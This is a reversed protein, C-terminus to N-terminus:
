VGLLEQLRTNRHAVQDNRVAMNIARQNGVLVCLKRARTIATYLLNRQLMLYHQTVIPMVVAPFEAGQSKHVSIAYALTLHDAESWDYTVPHDEFLVTLSHEILDITTIRGIDGNYVEKDYNNEIQMVRDGTRYLQGFLTKETKREGPPNLAAQLRQNLAHVGAAGRYMPALVQIDQNPDLGFKQPIRNLTVEVVWDAAKEPHAAPFLFFDAAEAEAGAFLPPQGHNIRHANAIIHSQAAQRFIVSLRTVPAAQANILDRLVDGAGVSPLQDIDGVLLLHTGVELAKLLNYTLHLDLMSAEDIVLMDVPLPNQANHRFGEGPKYSLLRHITSAPRETAQALRKAARGTPSALAYRKHAGELVAILAKLATTKGTGPGGTLISIPAAVATRIANQQEPSLHPDIDIFAPPTDSLRSPFAGALAQVRQAVGVESFFLPTLYVAQAVGYKAAAESVAANAGPPTEGPPPAKEPLPATKVREAQELREVAPGVLDPACGLMAAAQEVLQARPAFTHGDDSFQHLAYILGAEIRSPHDAPLGLSQAIHDATKFGIGYIDRALRYPDTQVTALAEDGYHKYIKVALNTSIAHSHLFLMIEKIQKQEEWAAAILAARRPGIDPAEELRHPHNEIVDLTELGFVQTIREALRPGIGKVLGSGLYRRMGALTAPTSQRCVEVQFQEGHQPHRGWKGELRVVEGPTLEPLNGIVTVLGDRSLASAPASNDRRGEPRLRLVTYGNEDNYFTIREVSGTLTDM